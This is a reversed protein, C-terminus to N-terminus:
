IWGDDDDELEEELDEDDYEEDKSNMRGIVTDAYKSTVRCLEYDTAMKYNRIYVLDPDEPIYGFYHHADGILIAPNKIVEDADDAFTHDGDYFYITTKSFHKMDDDFDEKSIIFPLKLQEPASTVITDSWQIDDADITISGLENGGSYNTFAEKVEETMESTYDNEEKFQEITQDVVSQMRDKTYQRVIEVEEEFQANFKRELLKYAIAGGIAAGSLFFIANNIFTKM